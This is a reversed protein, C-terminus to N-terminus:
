GPRMKMYKAIEARAEDLRGLLALTTALFTHTASLQEIYARNYDDLAEQYEGRAFHRMAPAVWFGAPTNPATLVIAKEAM